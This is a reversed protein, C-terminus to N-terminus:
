HRFPVPKATVLQVPGLLGSSQLDSDANYYSHTSFTYRGAKLAKGELLGSPWRLDRVDRDPAQQDGILRNAWLNAVEIELRNGQAKVFDTIDVRWPSCWLTGFDHGNL